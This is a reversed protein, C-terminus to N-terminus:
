LSKVIEIAKELQVDGENDFIDQSMEVEVDPELGNGEISLGAPTLWKAITIKISSSDSLKVLEQVSGKGFSKEGVITAGTNDRLAGALIESASASGKNILVVVSYDKLAGPGYSKHIKNLDKKSSEEKVVVSGDELFWGAINVAVELFGGPNNRLDLIIKDADSNLIENAANRFDSVATETFHYLSVYAVGDGKDEWSLIPIKITDRIISIKINEGDRAVDLVVESGKPGRIIKVAEELSLEETSTDNVSVIKDGARLGSAEAPSGKLPSIVTLVGDRIGIEAGIGEFSGNVNEEFIQADKPAFFTSYPDDLAGLMGEMAGYILDTTTLDEKDVFKEEIVDLGESILDFTPEKKILRELQSKVDTAQKDLVASKGFVFGGIFGATVAIALMSLLISKRHAASIKSNKPRM